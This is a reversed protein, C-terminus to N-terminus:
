RSTIFALKAGIRILEDPKNQITDVPHAPQDM